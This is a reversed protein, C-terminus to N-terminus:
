GTPPSNRTVSAAIILGNGMNDLMSNPEGKKIIRFIPKVLEVTSM